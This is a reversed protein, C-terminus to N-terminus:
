QLYQGGWQQLEAAGASNVAEQSQDALVAMNHLQKGIEVLLDNDVLLTLKQICDVAQSPLYRLNGGQSLWLGAAIGASPELVIPKDGTVHVAVQWRGDDAQFMIVNIKRSKNPM